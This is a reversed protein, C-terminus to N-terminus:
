MRRALEELERVHGNNAFDRKMVGLVQTISLKEEGGGDRLLRVAETWQARGTQKLSLDADKGEARSWLGRDTPGHPYLEVALEEFVKWFDSNKVETKGLRLRAFFGKVFGLLGVCETAAPAFSPAYVSVDCLKEAAQHWKRELVLAGIERATHQDLMVRAGVLANIWSIMAPQNLLTFNRFASVGINPANPVRVDLLLAIGPSSFIQQALETEVETEFGPETQYRACWGKLTASLFGACVTAPLLKWIERRHAYSTLDADATRALSELLMPEVNKKEFELDLLSQILERPRNIKKWCAASSLLARNLLLQWSSVELKWPELLEPNKSCLKGAVDLLREDDDNLAAAITDENSFRHSLFRIGDLDDPDIALQATFAERADLSASCAAAHLTFWKRRLAFERMLTAVSLDLTQPTGEVLSMEVPSAEPVSSEIQTMLKAKSQFWDMVVPAYEKRWAFFLRRISNMVAVSWQAEPKRLAELVLDGTQGSLDSKPLARELCQAVLADARAQLNAVQLGYLSRLALVDDVSGSTTATALLNVIEEKLSAGEDPKPALQSLFQLLARLEGATCTSKRDLYGACIEAKRLDSLERPFSNLQQFLRGVPEGGPLNRLYAEAPSTPTPTPADRRVVAYASWRSAYTEPTAFVSPTQNSLGRPSFHFGIRLHGRGAPWLRQWLWDVVETFGEQGLFAVPTPSPRLLSSVLAPYGDPEHEVKTMTLPLEMEEAQTSWQSDLTDPLLALLSSLTEIEVVDRLGVRLVFSRVMGPRPATSDYFTKMLLYGDGHPLCRIFPQWSPDHPSDLPLDTLGPLSRTLEADGISSSLVAHGGSKQGCIAREIRLRM